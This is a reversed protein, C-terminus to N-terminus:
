IRSPKTFGLGEIIGKQLDEDLHFDEDDWSKVQSVFDQKIVRIKGLEEEIVEADAMDKFETKKDTDGAEVM